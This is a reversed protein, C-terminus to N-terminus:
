ESGDGEIALQTAALVVARFCLRAVPALESPEAEAEVFADEVRRRLVPLREELAARDHNDRAMTALWDVIRTLSTRDTLAEAPQTATM